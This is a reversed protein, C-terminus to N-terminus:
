PGILPNDQITLDNAVSSVIKFYALLLNIKVKIILLNYRHFDILHTGISSIAIRSVM